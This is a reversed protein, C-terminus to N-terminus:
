RIYSKNTKKNINVKKTEYNRIRKKKKRTVMAKEFEKEM